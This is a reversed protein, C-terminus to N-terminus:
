GIHPESGSRAGRPLLILWFFHFGHVTWYTVNGQHYGVLLPHFDIVTWLAAANPEVASFEFLDDLSRLGGSKAVGVIIVMMIIMMVIAVVAVVLVVVMVRVLMAIRM